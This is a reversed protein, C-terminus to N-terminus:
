REDFGDLIRPRFTAQSPNSISKEMRILAQWAEFSLIVGVNGGGGMITDVASIAVIAVGDGETRIAVGNGGLDDGSGVAVRIGDLSSDITM